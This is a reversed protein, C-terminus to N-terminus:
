LITDLRTMSGDAFVLRVGAAGTGHLIVSENSEFVAIRCTSGDIKTHVDSASIGPAFSIAIGDIARASQDNDIFPSPLSMPAITPAPVSEPQAEIPAPQHVLLPAADAHRYGATLLRQAQERAAAFEESPGFHAEDTDTVSAIMPEDDNRPAVTNTLRADADTNDAGFRRPFTGLAARVAAAQAPSLPVAVGDLMLLAQAVQSTSLANLTPNLRTAPATEAYARAISTASPARQQGASGSALLTSILTEARPATDPAQATAAQAAFPTTVQPAAPVAAATSPLAAVPLGQPTLRLPPINM